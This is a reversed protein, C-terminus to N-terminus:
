ALGDRDDARGLVRIREARRVEVEALHQAGGPSAVLGDVRGLPRGLQEVLFRDYPKNDNFAQIVWDRWLWM